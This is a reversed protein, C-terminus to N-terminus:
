VMQDDHEAREKRTRKKKEYKREKREKEKKQANKRKMQDLVNGRFVYCDFM